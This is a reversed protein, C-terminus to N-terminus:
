LHLCAFHLKSYIVILVKTKTFKGSHRTSNAQQDLLSLAKLIAKEYNAQNSPLVYDVFKTFM